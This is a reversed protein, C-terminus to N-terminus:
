RRPRAAAGVGSGPDRTDIRVVVSLGPRLLEPAPVVDPLSVRVPVRQVIKTFNGTANEPPLLSFVAGSAPSFSEVRGELMAGPLADVEIRAVQGPKLRALHTEKFNADIWLGTVPVVAAIRAGPQVFEGPQVARNGVIGDSPARISAFGRDREARALGTELEPLMREAEAMEARAVEVRARATAIAAEASVLAAASRQREAQAQDLRARSAHDRAALVTYRSLESQALTDAARLGALEAEAQVVVARATDAQRALRAIAARQTAIRARAAAIALVIDGDDLQAIVDGANVRDGNRVEIAVVHGPLRTAITAVDGRVYADDTSVVFRGDRWWRWGADVGASLVGLLVVVLIWREPRRKRPTAASPAHPLSPNPPPAGAGPSTM